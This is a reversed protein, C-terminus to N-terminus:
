SPVGVPDRVVLTFVPAAHMTDMFREFADASGTIGHHGGVDGFASGLLICGESDAVVNGRHMEIAQRGPVESLEYVDYGFRPSLRRTAPFMGAPISSVDPKDDLWPRELTVCLRKGDADTIQGYTAYSDRHLRQLTLVPRVISAADAAASPNVPQTSM